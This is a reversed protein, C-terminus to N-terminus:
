VGLFYWTLPLEWRQARLKLIQRSRRSVSQGDKRQLYFKKFCSKFVIGNDAQIRAWPLGENCYEQCLLEGVLYTSMVPLSCLPCNKQHVCTFGSDKGFRGANSTRAKRTHHQIQTLRLPLKPRRSGPFGVTLVLLLKFFSFRNTNTKAKKKKDLQMQQPAPLQLWSENLGGPPLTSLNQSSWLM